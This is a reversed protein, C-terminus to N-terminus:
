YPSLAVKYRQLIYFGIEDNTVGLDTILDDFDSSSKSGLDSLLQEYLNSGYQELLDTLLGSILNCALAKEINTFSENTTMEKLDKLWENYEEISKLSSSKSFHYLIKCGNDQLSASKLVDELKSMFFSSAQEFKSYDIDKDVEFDVGEIEKIREVNKRYAFACIYDWLNAIKENVKTGRGYRYCSALKNIVEPSDESEEFTEEDPNTCALKLYKFAKNYDRDVITNGDYYALGLIEQSDYDGSDAAKTFYQVSKEKNGNYRYYCGLYFSAEVSGFDSCGIILKISSSTEELEKFDLGLGQLYRVEFFALDDAILSKQENTINENIAKTYYYVALDKYTNTESSITSNKELLIEYYLRGLGECAKPYHQSEAKKLWKEAQGYDVELYKGNSFLKGITYQSKSDGKKANAMLEDIAEKYEKAVGPLFKQGYAHLSFVCFLMTILYTKMIM